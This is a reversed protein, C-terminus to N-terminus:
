VSLHNLISHKINKYVEDISQQYSADFKAFNLAWSKRDYFEYVDSFNIIAPNKIEYLIKESVFGYYDADIYDLDDWYLCPVGYKLVSLHFSSNGGIILDCQEADELLSTRPESMRVKHSSFKTTIPHAPHPRILISQIESRQDLSKILSQFVPEEYVNVFVGVNLGAEPKKLREINLPRDIGEIGRYVIAMHKMDAEPTTQAYIKHAIEGDLINLDFRLRPFRQSVHAHQIYATKRNQSRAAGAFALPILSHDNSVILLQTQDMYKRIFHTAFVYYMVFILNNFQDISHGRMYPKFLVGWAAFIGRMVIPTYRLAKWTMPHRDRLDITSIKQDYLVSQKLFDTQRVQNETCCVLTIAAHRDLKAQVRAIRKVFLLATSAFFILQSVQSHELTSHIYRRFPTKLFKKEQLVDQVDSSRMKRLTRFAFLIEINM